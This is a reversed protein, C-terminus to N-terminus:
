DDNRWEDRALSGTAAAVRIELADPVGGRDCRELTRSFQLVLREKRRFFRRLPFAFKSQPVLFRRAPGRRPAAAGSGVIREVALVARAGDLGEAGGDDGVRGVTSDGRERRCSCLDLTATELPHLLKLVRFIWSKLIPTQREQRRARGHQRIGVVAVVQDNLGLIGEDYVSLHDVVGSDNMRVPARM